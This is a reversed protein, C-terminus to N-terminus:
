KLHGVLELFRQEVAARATKDVARLAKAVDSPISKKGVRQALWRNISKPGKSSNAATTFPLFNEPVGHIMQWRGEADLQLFRPDRAIENRSMIHDSAWSDTEMPRGTTVDIPRGNVPKLAPYEDANALAHPKAREGPVMSKVHEAVTRTLDKTHGDRKSRLKAKAKDLREYERGAKTKPRPPQGKFKAPDEPDPRQSLETMKQEIAAVKKEIKLLENRAHAVEKARTAADAETKQKKKLDSKAERLERKTKDYAEDVYDRKRKRGLAKRLEKLFEFQEANENVRAEAAARKTNATELVTEAEAVRKDAELRSRTPAPSAAAPRVATLGEPEVTSVVKGMTQSQAPPADGASTRPTATDPPDASARVPENARQGTVGAGPRQASPVRRAAPMESIMDPSQPSGGVPVAPDSKGAPADVPSRSQASTEPMDSTPVREKQSRFGIQRPKTGTLAKTAEPTPMQEHPLEFGIRKPKTAAPTAAIELKPTQQHPLDFGIERVEPVVPPVPGDPTAALVRTRRLRFPNTFKAPLRLKIARFFRSAGSASGFLGLWFGGWAMGRDFPAMKSDTFARRVDNIGTVDAVAGLLASLGSAGAQRREDYAKAGFYGILFGGVVAIIAFIVAAAAGGVLIPLGVVLAILAGVILVFGLAVEVTDVVHKLISHDYRWAAERAANHMALPQRSLARWQEGIVNSVAQHIEAVATKMTERLKQRADTVLATLTNGSETVATYLTEDLATLSSGLHEKTAATYKTLARENEAGEARLTSHLDKNGAALGRRSFSVARGLTGVTTDRATEFVTGTEDAAGMSFAAVEDVFQQSADPDLNEDVTTLIGVAEDVIAAIPEM